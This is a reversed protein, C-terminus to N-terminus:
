QRGAQAGMPGSSQAAACTRAPMALLVGEFVAAGLKHALQLFLKTFEDSVASGTGVSLFAPVVFVGSGFSPTTSCSPPGKPAGAWFTHSNSVTMTTPAPMPTVGKAEIKRETFRRTLCCCIM